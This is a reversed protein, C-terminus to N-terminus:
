LEVRIFHLTQGFTIIFLLWRYPASLFQLKNDYHYGLLDAAVNAYCWGMNGQDRVPGMEPIKDIFYCSGVNDASYASVGISLIIASFLTGKLM